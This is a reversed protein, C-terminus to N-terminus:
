NVIEAAVLFVLNIRQECLTNPPVLSQHSGSWGLRLEAGRRFLMQSETKSPFTRSTNRVCRRRSNLPAITFNTLPRRPSRGRLRRRHLRDSSIVARRKEVTAPSPRAQCGQRWTKNASFVSERRRRIGYGRVGKSDRRRRHWEAQRSASAVFRGTSLVVVVDVPRADISNRHATCPM